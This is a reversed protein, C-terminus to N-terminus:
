ARTLGGDRGIKGAPEGCSHDEWADPVAAPTSQVSGAIEM